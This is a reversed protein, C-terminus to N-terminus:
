CRPRGCWEPFREGADHRLNNFDGEVVLPERSASLGQAYLLATAKNPFLTRTALAYAGPTGDENRDDRCIVIFM